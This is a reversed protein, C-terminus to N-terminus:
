KKLKLISQKDIDASRIDPPLTTTSITRKYYCKVEANEAADDLAKNYADVQAQKIAKIINEDLPDLVDPFKYGVFTEFYEEPNKMM